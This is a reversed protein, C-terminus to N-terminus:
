VYPCGAVAHHAHCAQALDRAPMWDHDVVEFVVVAFYDTPRRVVLDRVEDGIFLEHSGVSAVFFKQKILRQLLDGAVMGLQDVGM